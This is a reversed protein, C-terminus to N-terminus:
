DRNGDGNVIRHFRAPWDVPLERMFLDAAFFRLLFEAGATEGRLGRALAAVEAGAPADAL